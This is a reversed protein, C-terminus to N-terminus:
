STPIPNLNMEDDDMLLETDDPQHTTGNLEGEAEEQETGSIAAFPAFQAARAMASMRQHSKPEYHPLHIIDDYDKSM